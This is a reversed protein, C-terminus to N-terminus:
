KPKGFICMLIYFGFLKMSFSIERHHKTINNIKSYIHTSKTAVFYLGFNM